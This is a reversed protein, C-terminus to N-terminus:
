TILAIGHGLSVTGPDPDNVPKLDVNILVSVMAMFAM